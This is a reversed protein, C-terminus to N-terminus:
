KVISLYKKFIEYTSPFYINWNTDTGDTTKSAFHLHVLLNKSQRTAWPPWALVILTATAQTIAYREGINYLRM